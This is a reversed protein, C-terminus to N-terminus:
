NFFSTGNKKFCENWFDAIEEAKKKTPFYNAVTMRKDHAFVNLLNSNSDVKLVYAYNKGNETASVAFYLNRM